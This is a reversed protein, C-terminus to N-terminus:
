GGAGAPHPSQGWRRTPRPLPDKLNPHHFIALARPRNDTLVLEYLDVRSPLPESSKSLRMGLWLAARKVRCYAQIDFRHGPRWYSGAKPSAHNGFEDLSRRTRGSKVEVCILQGEALVVLDIEGHPTAVRSGLIRAESDRRKICRAVLREGLLGLEENKLCLWKTAAAPAIRM